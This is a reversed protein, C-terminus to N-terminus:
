FTSGTDLQSSGDESRNTQFISAACSRFKLRNGDGTAQQLHLMGQSASRKDFERKLGLRARHVAHGFNECGQAFSIRPYQLREAENGEFIIIMSPQSSGHIVNYIPIRKPQPRGYEHDGLSELAASLV